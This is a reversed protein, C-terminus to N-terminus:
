ICFLLHLFTIVSYSLSIDQSFIIWIEEDERGEGMQVYQHSFWRQQPHLFHRWAQSPWAGAATLCFSFGSSAPADCLYHPRLASATRGYRREWGLSSPPITIQIQIVQARKIRKGTSRLGYILM